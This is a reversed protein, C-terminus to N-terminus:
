FSPPGASSGADSTTRAYGINPRSIYEPQYGIRYGYSKFETTDPLALAASDLLQAVSIVTEAREPATPLDASARIGTASRYISRDRAVRIATRPPSRRLRRRTAARRGPRGRCPTRRCRREPHPRSSRLFGSM